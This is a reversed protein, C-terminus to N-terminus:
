TPEKESHDYSSRHYVVGNIVLEMPANSTGSEGHQELLETPINPTGHEDHQGLPQASVDPAGSGDHQGLVGASFNSNGIINHHGLLNAPVDPIGTRNRHGPITTLIPVWERKTTAMEAFHEWGVNDTPTDQLADSQTFRGTFYKQVQPQPLSTLRHREAIQEETWSQIQPVSM